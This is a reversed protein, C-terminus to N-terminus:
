ALSRWFNQQLEAQRKFMAAGNVYAAGVSRAYARGLSNERYDLDLVRAPRWAEPPWASSKDGAAWIVRVPSGVGPGSVREGSRASYYSAEPLLKRLVERTGGGGWVATEGRLDVNRVAFALGEFDTNTGVLKGDLARWGWTNVARFEWATPRREDGLEFAREKLPSTIAAARLGLKRLIRVAEPDFEDLALPVRVFAWGREAAFAEHFTPSWSHAVPSGLVAAFGAEFGALPLRSLALAELLTPQDSASGDGERLFALPAGRSALARYWNWRGTASMPLFVRRAPDLAAWDHGIELEALSAVPWALKLVTRPLDRAARDLVVAAEALTAPAGEGAHLSLIRPAEPSRLRDELKTAIESALSRLSRVDVDLAADPFRASLTAWASAERGSRLSLLWKGDGTGADRLLEEAQRASWEDDKIELRLGAALARTRAAEAGRGPSLTLTWAERLKWASPGEFYIAEAPDARLGERLVLEADAWSRYRAEREPARSLFEDLPTRDADLRPRDLFIRGTADTARRVWTARVGAPLPGEFGAGVAIWTEVGSAGAEGVLEDLTTRELERFAREGRAAFLAPVRMGTRKEIEADLDFGRAGSRRALIRALLSTKGVGRHGVLLTIM